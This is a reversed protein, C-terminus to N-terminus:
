ITKKLKKMEKNLKEINQLSNDVSTSYHDSKKQCYNINKQWGNIKEDIYEMIANRKDEDSLLHIINKLYKDRLFYFMGFISFIMYALVAPFFGVLLLVIIAFVIGSLNSWLSVWVHSQSNYICFVVIALVAIILTLNRSKRNMKNSATKWAYSDLADQEISPENKTTEM